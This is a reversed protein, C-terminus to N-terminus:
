FEATAKVALEGAPGRVWVSCEDANEPKGSLTFPATDFIPNFNRFSFKRLPRGDMKNVALRMLLTGLLPGHVVLGPYGEEKLCYDLDYHIRHGNFTLASYRFLLVPDPDVTEEWTGDTPALQLDKKGGSTQGAAERYVIDHEETVCLGAASKVQHEVTVFVLAGTRGQKQAVSKITSIKEAADGARLPAHFELRGGAWMRRPLEVPPLFDGKIGHGDPGIRSQKDTPLFYMWHGGPPVIDSVPGKEDMVASFGNLAHQHIIEQQSIQNGIWNELKEM